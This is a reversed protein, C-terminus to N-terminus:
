LEIVKKYPVFVDYGEDDEFHHMNDVYEGSFKYRIFYFRGPNSFWQAFNTSRSQGIYWAGSVLDKKAIAGAKIYSKVNNQFEEPTNCRPFEPIDDVKTFKRGEKILELHNFAWEYNDIEKIPIFKIDSVENLESNKSTLNIDEVFVDHNYQFRITVNQRKDSLPNSNISLFEM